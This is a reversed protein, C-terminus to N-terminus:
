SCAEFAEKWREEVNTKSYPKRWGPAPPVWPRSIAEHWDGDVLYLGPVDELVNVRSALVRAGGMLARLPYLAQRSTFLPFLCRGCGRLRALCEGDTLGGPRVLKESLPHHDLLTSFEYMEAPEFSGMLLLSVDETPALTLLTPLGSERGHIGWAGILTPNLECEPLQEDDLLPPVVIGSCTPSLMRQVLKLDGQSAVTFAQCATLVTTFAHQHQFLLGEPEGLDFSFLFPLELEACAVASVMAYEVGVHHIGSWGQSDLLERLRDTLSRMRLHTKGTLADAALDAAKITWGTATAEVKGCWHKPEHSRGLCILKVGDPL